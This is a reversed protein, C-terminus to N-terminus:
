DRVVALTTTLERGGITAMVTYTGPEVLEGQNGGGGGFGRGGLQAGPVGPVGAARFAAIVGQMGGFGGRGGGGGGVTGEGPRDEWPRQAAGATSPVGGGGGGGGGPGQQAPPEGKLLGAVRRVTASDQGAAILSDAVIDARRMTVISDRRESPSLTREVPAPEGRMNWRATQIGARGPGSLTQVVSGQADAITISVPTESATPNFYV